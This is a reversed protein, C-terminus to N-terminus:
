VVSHETQIEECLLDGVQPSVKWLKLEQLDYAGRLYSAVEDTNIVGNYAATRNFNQIMNYATLMQQETTCSAIVKVIKTIAEKPKSFTNM